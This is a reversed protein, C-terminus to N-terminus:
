SNNYVKFELQFLKKPQPLKNTNLAYLIKMLCHIIWDERFLDKENIFLIIYGFRSFHRKRKDEYDFSHWARSDYVEIILNASLHIFDPNKRGIFLAYNGVYRFPQSFINILITIKREYSSPKRWITKLIAETAKERWADDQWCRKSINSLKKKTDETHRKGTNKQRINNKAEETHHWGKFGANVRSSHGRLFTRSSKKVKKGCGCACFPLQRAKIEREIDFKKAMTRRGIVLGMLLKEDCKSNHGHIFRDTPHLVKKGCGCACNNPTVEFECFVWFRAFAVPNRTTRFPKGNHGLIYKNGTKPTGGCGCKCSM